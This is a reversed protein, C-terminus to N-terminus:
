VCTRGPGRLSPPSPAPSRRVAPPLMTLAHRLKMQMMVVLPEEEESETRLKRM